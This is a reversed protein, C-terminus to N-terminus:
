NKGKFPAFYDMYKTWTIETLMQSTLFTNSVSVIKINRISNQKTAYKCNNKGYKPYSKLM